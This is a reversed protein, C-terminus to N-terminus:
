YPRLNLPAEDLQALQERLALVQEGWYRETNFWPFAMKFAPDDWRKSLWGTYHLLRNARLPEILALERQDFHTFQEYAELLTDMQMVKDNNDGSLFMWMDGIAPGKVCDDFDVFHPTDSRWLINGPHCDGHLSLLTPKVDKFAQAIQQSLEASLEEWNRQYALPIFDTNLVNDRATQAFADSDLVERHKFNVQHGIQHMQGLVSGLQELHDFNDLEPAHGGQRKFLAFLFGKHEFLTQGDIVMPAVVSLGADKLQQTYQHEELIQERSWRAPRYFKAIIPEDEEIGVQWVRNEYSNLPFLRLDSLYGLSEVAAIIADQDLTYWLHKASM